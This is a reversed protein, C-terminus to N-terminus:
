TRDGTLLQKPTNHGIMHMPMLMSAILYVICIMGIGLLSEASWAVYFRDALPTVRIINLIVAAACFSVGCCLLAQMLSLRVCQKWRLGCVYFVAYDRLRSRTTLASSSMCSVCTLILLVLIVPIQDYLQRYLYRRNRPQLVQLSEATYAGSELIIKQNEALQEDTISDSFTILSSGSMGTVIESDLRKLTELNAILLTRDPALNDCTEYFYSYNLNQLDTGAGGPLKTESKFVGSVRFSYRRMSGDQCYFEIEIEDGTKWGFPNEQVVVEPLETEAASSLWKGSLLKPQYATVLNDTYALIRTDHEHLVTQCAFPEACGIIREAGSLKSLVGQDDLFEMNDLMQGLSFISYVGKSNLEKKLASYYRYRLGFASIMIVVAAMAATLQLCTLLNLLLEKRINKRVTRLLM